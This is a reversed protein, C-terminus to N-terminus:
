GRSAYASPLRGHFRKFAASFHSPNSYGVSLATEMISCTGSEILELAHEMRLSRVYEGISQNTRQRFGAKLYCENLGVRRALAAITPPDAWEARLIDIAADIAPCARSVPRNQDPYDFALIQALLDLALSEFHLRGCVTDRNTALLKGAARILPATRRPCRSLPRMGMPLAAQATGADRLILELTRSLGCRCDSLWSEVMSRPLELSLGRIVKASPQFYRACAAFNRCLWLDGGRIIERTAAAGPLVVEFEGSLLLNFGITTRVDLYEGRLPRSLEYDCMGVGLGRDMLVLEAWGSGAEDPLELRLRSGPNGMVLSKEVFAGQERYHRRYREILSADRDAVSGRRPEVAYM